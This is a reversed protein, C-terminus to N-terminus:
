STRNAICVSSMKYCNAFTRSFRTNDSLDGSHPCVFSLFFSTLDWTQQLNTQIFLSLYISSSCYKASNLLSSIHKGLGTLEKWYLLLSCIVRHRMLKKLGILIERVAFQTSVIHFCLLVMMTHCYRLGMVSAHSVRVLFECCFSACFVQVFYFM